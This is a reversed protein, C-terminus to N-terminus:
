HSFTFASSRDGRHVLPDLNHKHIEKILDEQTLTMPFRLHTAQIGVELCDALKGRIYINSGENENAQIIVLHPKVKLGQTLTQLKTKEQQIYQAITMFVLIIVFEFLSFRPLIERTHFM